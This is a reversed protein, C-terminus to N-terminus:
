FYVDRDDGTQRHDDKVGAHDQVARGSAISALPKVPEGPNTSILFVADDMGDPGCEEKQTLSVEFEVHLFNMDQLAAQMDATFAQATKKRLAGLKQALGSLKEQAQFLAERRAALWEDQHNLRDLEEQRKKAYLLM